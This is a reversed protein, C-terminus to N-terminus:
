SQAGMGEHNTIQEEYAIQRSQRGYADALVEARTIFLDEESLGHMLLLRKEADYHYEVKGDALIHALKIGQDNLHRGVLITRHCELPDKEACMLAICYKGMGKRVRELGDTFQPELALLDFQVKGNRYCGPNESRAGLEKGLFVYAIGHTSLSLQLTERNFQPNYRSYPHSRVDVIATIGHIQLLNIFSDMTHTSHGITYLLSNMQM